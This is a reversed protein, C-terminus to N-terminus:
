GHAPFSGDLTPDISLDSEPELAGRRKPHSPPLWPATTFERDDDDELEEREDDDDDDVDLARVRRIEFPPKDIEDYRRPPQTKDDTGDFPSPAEVRAVDHEDSTDFSGDGGTVTALARPLAAMRAGAANDYPRIPDEVDTSPASNYPSEDLETDEEEEYIESDIPTFPQAASAAPHSAMSEDDDSPATRVAQAAQAPYVKTNTKARELGLQSRVDGDEEIEGLLKNVKENRPDLARARKLVEYAKQRQGGLLLAEGKLLHGMPNDRERELAVRMEALVEDFRGLAMLAMGLVLRGEVNTPSALLGLRCVKVAEQFQRRVILVKGRQVFDGGDARSSAQPPQFPRVM